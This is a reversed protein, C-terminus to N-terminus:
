TKAIVAEPGFRIHWCDNSLSVKRRSTEDAECSV